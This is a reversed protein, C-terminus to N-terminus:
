KVEHLHGDGFLLACRVTKGPYLAAAARRYDALQDLYSAARRNLDPEDLGGTKYDLVWVEDDFEVLRDIRRVQGDDGVYELENHGRGAEFFRRSQPSNLMSQATARVTNFLSEELGLDSRIAADTQGTTALELYRHVQIGFVIEATTPPRRRGIATAGESIPTWDKAQVEALPTVFEAVGMEPLGSFDAQELGAQLRALWTGDKAGELGSVILAQRARTMAVYLLNLTERAEQDREQDFLPQRVYGRWESPGYVSFHGPQEEGPPWDLLAGYHDRSRREEDAKILFVVPAELGKAAHITLMRIVNGTAAPPEDPAEDGARRQLAQLEDLFRPLSPFRGSGLSLSLELLGRLNALV